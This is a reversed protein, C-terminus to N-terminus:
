SKRSSRRARPKRPPEDVFFSKFLALLKRALEDVEDDRLERSPDEYAGRRPVTVVIHEGTSENTFEVEYNSDAGAQLQAGTLIYHHVV